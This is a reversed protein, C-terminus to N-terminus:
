ETAKKKKGGKGRGQFVVIQTVNGSDDTTITAFVGRKGINKFVENTLGDKLTDGVEVKKEEKNYKGKNIKVSSSVTYDKGEGLKKTEKDRTAVTITKGDDSVKTIVGRIDEAM